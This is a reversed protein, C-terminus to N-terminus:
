KSEYNNSKIINDIKWLPQLNKWNWCEKLQRKNTLDFRSVPKIHDIEWKGYNEWSMGELFLSELHNKLKKLTCGIYWITKETKSNKLYHWLSSGITCKIHFSPDKERKDKLWKNMYGSKSKLWSKTQKRVKEKKDPNKDLYDDQYERRKTKNKHYSKLDIKSKCPRCYVNHKSCRPNKNCKYCLKM